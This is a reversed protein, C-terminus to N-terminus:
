FLNNYINNAACGIGAGLFCPEIFVACGVTWLPDTVVNEYFDLMCGTWGGIGWINRGDRLDSYSIFENNLFELSMAPNMYLDYIQLSGTGDTLSIVNRECVYAM